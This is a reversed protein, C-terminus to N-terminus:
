RPPSPRCAIPWSSPTSGRPSRPTAWRAWVSSANLAQSPTSRPTAPDRTSGRSPNSLYLVPDGQGPVPRGSPRHAPVRLWLEGRRRQDGEARHQLRRLRAPGAVKSGLGYTSGRRGPEAPRVAALRHEHLDAGPAHNFADTVMSKVIAIDDVVEGLHPLLESLELASRAMSPRVQVPPGALDLEPQHVGGSLRQAARGPALDRRVQPADPKDDFLDLHSPAGAQFLFIVRKAKAPLPPAKPALPDTPGPFSGSASGGGGMLSGLAVAGLGVGCEQFFWRRTMEQRAQEFPNM